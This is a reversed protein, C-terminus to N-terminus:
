TKTLPLKEISFNDSLPMITSVNTVCLRLLAERFNGSLVTPRNSTKKFFDFSCNKM